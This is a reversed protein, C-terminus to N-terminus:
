CPPQGGPTLGFFTKTPTPNSRAKDGEEGRPPALHLHRNLRPTSTMLPPSVWPNMVFSTQTPTPNLRAQLAELEGLQMGHEESPKLEMHPAEAVTQKRDLCDCLVKLSIYLDISRLSILYKSWEECEFISDYIILNIPMLIITELYRKCIDYSDDEGFWQLYCHYCYCQGWMLCLKLTRAKMRYHQRKLVCIICKCKKHLFDKCLPYVKCYVGKIPTGLFLKVTDDDTYGQKQVEECERLLHLGDTFAKWLNNLESMLKGDGGKDPHYELVKSKYADRMVPYNGYKELPVGLLHMLRKREGWGLVRDM